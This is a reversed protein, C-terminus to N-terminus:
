LLSMGFFCLMYDLSNNNNNNNYNNNNSSTTMSKIEAMKNGEAEHQKIIPYM